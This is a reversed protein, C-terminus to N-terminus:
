QSAGVRLQAKQTAYEECYRLHASVGQPTAFSRECYPCAHAKHGNSQTEDQSEQPASQTEGQSEQTTGAGTMEALLEARRLKHAKRNYPPALSLIMEEVRQGQERRMAIILAGCASLVPFVLPALRAAKPVTDLIVTLGIVSAFYVLAVGIALLFPARRKDGDKLGRNHERFDLATNIASLGVGEVVLGTVIAIPWPWHLYEGTRQYTLFATPLPALWPSTRAVTDTLLRETLRM